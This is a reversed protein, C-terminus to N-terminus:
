ISTFQFTLHNNQLPSQCLYNIESVKQITYGLENQMIDRIRAYNKEWIEIYILPQDKLITEKGGELVQKEWGEVDIKVFDIKPLNMSDLTQTKVLSHSKPKRWKLLDTDILTSMGSNNDKTTMSQSGNSDSLAMENLQVNGLRECNKKHCEIHKQMPEFAIVKFFDVALRRSWIGVHAGIDLAVTGSLRHLELKNYEKIEYNKGWIKSKDQEPIFIGNTKRM